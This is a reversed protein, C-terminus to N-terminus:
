RGPPRSRPAAPAPPSTPRAFGLGAAYLGCLAQNVAAVDDSSPTTPSSALVDDHKSGLVDEVFGHLAKKPGVEVFVRAGAAYLTQLGKVFQVPSAIQKGAYDLMTETTADAPYFEGTVNAVIPLQPPRMDLRRLANVFPVSAPAVISTHFAHSV